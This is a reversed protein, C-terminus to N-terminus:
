DEKCLFKLLMETLVAGEVVNLELEAVLYAMFETAGQEKLEQELTSKDCCVGCCMDLEEHVGM